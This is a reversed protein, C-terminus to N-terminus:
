QKDIRTRWYDEKRSTHAIAFIEIVNGKLGYVVQFSFPGILVKRIGSKDAAWHEPSRRIAHLTDRVSRRWKETVHPCNTDFWATAQELEDAAAMWYRIKYHAM